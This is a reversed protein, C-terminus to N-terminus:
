PRAGLIPWQMNNDAYRTAPDLCDWSTWYQIASTKPNPSWSTNGSIYSTSMDWGDCSDLSDGSGAYGASNWHAGATGCYLDCDDFVAGGWHSANFLYAAGGPTANYTVTPRSLLRKFLVHSQPGLYSVGGWWHSDGELNVLGGNNAWVEVDRFVTGYQHIELAASGCGKILCDDVLYGRDPGRGGCAFSIPCYTVPEFDCGSFRVNHLYNENDYSSFGRNNEVLESGSARSRETPSNPTGISCDCWTWDGFRGQNESSHYCKIANVGDFGANNSVNNVIVCNYFTLNYQTTAGVFGGSVAREGLTIVGADGPSIGGTCIFRADKILVDHVNSAVYNGGVPYASQSANLTVHTTYSAHRSNASNAYVHDEVTVASQPFVAQWQATTSNADLTTVPDIYFSSRNSTNTGVEVYVPHHTGPAGALGPSMSPVTVM